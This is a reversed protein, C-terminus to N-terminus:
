KDEEKKGSTIIVIDLNYLEKMRSYLAYTHQEVGGKEPYFYPTFVLVKM